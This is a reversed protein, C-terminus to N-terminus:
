YCKIVEKHADTPCIKMLKTYEVAASLCGQLQKKRLEDGNKGM